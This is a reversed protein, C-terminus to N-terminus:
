LRSIMLYGLHIEDELEAAGPELFIRYVSKYKAPLIDEIEHIDDVDVGYKEDIHSEAGKLNYHKYFATQKAKRVAEAKTPASVLIKYHFEDFENKKYGGLNLFFLKLTSDATAQNKPLLLIKCGDVHKIKRWADIHLRGSSEPWFDIMDKKLSALDEGISFFIDHQETNRGKPMAGLLIMFLDM